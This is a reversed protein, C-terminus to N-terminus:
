MKKTATRSAVISDELIYLNSYSKMYYVHWRKYFITVNEKKNTIDINMLMCLVDYFFLREKGKVM